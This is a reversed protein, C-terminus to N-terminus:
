TNAPKGDVSSLFSDLESADRPYDGYQGSLRVAFFKFHKREAIAGCDTCEMLNPAGDVLGLVTDTKEAFASSKENLEDAALLVRNITDYHLNMGPNEPAPLTFLKGCAPCIGLVGFKPGM